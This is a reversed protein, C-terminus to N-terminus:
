PRTRRMSGGLMMLEEDDDDSDQEDDGDDEPYHVQNEIPKGTASPRYRQTITDATRMFDPASDGHQLDKRYQNRYEVSLFTDEPPSSAGSTALFSQNSTSQTVSSNGFDEMSSATTSIPLKTIRSDIELPSHPEQEAQVRRRAGYTLDDPSPPCESPNSTGQSSGASSSAQEAEDQAELMHRRQNIEQAHSFASESSALPQHYQHTAVTSPRVTQSQELRQDVARLVEPTEISGTAQANSFALSPASRNEGESSRRTASSSRSSDAPRRDRSALRSLTRKSGEWIGEVRSQLTSEPSRAAQVNELPLHPNVQSARITRVSDATSLESIARDQLKPRLEPVPQVRPSPQPSFKPTEGAFYGPMEQNDPSASQSQALPHETNERSRHLAPIVEDGRLSTRRVDRGRENKGITSATSGTPSNNVSESSTSTNTAVSLGRKRATTAGRLFNGVIRTTAKALDGFVSRKVVAASIEKEDPEIIKKENEVIGPPQLFQKEDHTPLGELVWPHRKAEAITMRKSPDKILLKMILNRLDEPVPEFKLEYDLRKNCNIPVKSQTVWGPNASDVPVLRTKPCIAPTTCQAAHLGMTGEAYWPLRAYVMAYLTVGLAWLDIAGTIKPIKGDKWISADEYVLEPAWFGPTGVNRALEREDDVSEAEREPLIDEKVAAETLPRGLYSVGFDSIKITGDSAVLLNSPKIDRHIIGVAHLFELGLLTDRFARRAEEQTLAPVWDRQEDAEGEEADFESSMHSLATAISFKRESMYPADDYPGYMSGALQSSGSGVYDDLSHSRTPAASELQAYSRAISHAISHAQSHTRELNGTDEDIDSELNWHSVGSTMNHQGARAKELADHRAVANRVAWLDQDSPELTMAIGKCEHEFRACNIHTIIPVGKRRWTIEGHEVFELVLYVKNKNPDDIVELLSVVNPHRAKKLIAVEKKTQDQPEGLKGLRRRRSFRPVIKIAVLMENVMDRGLKVKGQEGRGLEKIVEYTNIIKNGTMLDHDIEAAHTEKPTQLHHLQPSAARQSDAEFPNTVRVATPSFLGPSSMPTNDATRAFSPLTLRDRSQKSMNSMDNYLLNQAPHSSRTRLIPAPRTNGHSPQSLSSLSQEPYIPHENNMHRRLTAVSQSMSASKSHRRHHQPSPRSRTSLSRTVTSTVEPAGQGDDDEQGDQEALTHLSGSSSPGSFNLVRLTRRPSPSHISHHAFYNNSAQEHSLQTSAPATLPSATAIPSKAPTEATPRLFGDARDAVVLPRDRTGNLNDMDDRSLTVEDSALSTVFDAEAVGDKATDDSSDVSSSTQGNSVSDGNLGAEVAM